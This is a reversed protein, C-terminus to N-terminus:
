VQQPLTPPISIASISDEIDLPYFLGQITPDCRVADLIVDRNAKSPDMLTQSYEPSLTVSFADATGNEIEELDDCYPSPGALWPNARGKMREVLEDAWSWFFSIDTDGIFIWSLESSLQTVNQPFEAVKMNSISLFVMGQVEFIEPPVERLPNGTLALYYPELRAMVPPVTTLQSYEVQLISYLPWKTDLDDPLSRLNTVCIEFDYLTQPFDSSQLGPPLLGNTMNVRVLFLSSMEPHNTSTIAATEDWTLITTNYIKINRLGHFETFIDPMELENCHRILLQVVTSGDFESWKKEVEDLKGTIGLTYCDLGALYCSTQSVAWPRVQMLCHPLEPQTSAQIHLGLLVVGWLGFLVHAARLLLRASRTQLRTGYYSDDRVSLLEHESSKPKSSPVRTDDVKFDMANAKNSWFRDSVLAQEPRKSVEATVSNGKRVTYQLLEKMNMTTIVLGLSFIARSALDSWSVVVVMKFENIARAVWEDRYWIIEPFGHLQPDYESAYSLLVILEVGMCAMLDLACDLVICAFRRRAEDRKFFFAYVIVSSWCNIALLAVYFRNLLVRPLLKSMRYAQITQLTTELIERCVHVAHFHNGNVGFIGHRDSVKTYVKTFSQLIVSSTRTNYLEEKSKAEANCSRLPTFALSRQKLSEAIMLFICVAHLASMVAHVVAISHHYQPPMGIHYSDLYLNLFTSALKLYCYAYLANYVCAAVHIALIFVWWLTFAGFSLRVVETSSKCM